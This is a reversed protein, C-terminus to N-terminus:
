IMDMEGRFDNHGIEMQRDNFHWKLACTIVNEVFSSKYVKPKKETQYSYFGLNRVKDTSWIDWRKLELFDM